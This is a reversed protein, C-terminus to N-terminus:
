RTRLGRFISIQRVYKPGMAVRVARPAFHARLEGIKQAASIRHTSNLPNVVTVQLSGIVEKLREALKGLIDTDPLPTSFKDRYSTEFEHQEHCCIVIRVRELRFVEDEISRATTTM